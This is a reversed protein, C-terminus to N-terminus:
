TWERLAASLRWSAAGRTAVSSLGCRNGKTVRSPRRPSAAALSPKRTSPRGPLLRLGQGARRPRDTTSRDDIRGVRGRRLRDGARHERRPPEDDGAAPGKATAGPAAAGTAATSATAATAATTVAAATTTVVAAPLIITVRTGGGGPVVPSTIRTEGGHAHVIEHVLWLGIGAGPVEGTNEADVQHLLSGAHELEAPPIGPGDDEFSVALRGASWECLVRLEGGERGFKVANEVLHHFALRLKEEECRVPFLSEPFRRRVRFSKEAVAKSNSTMAADVLDEVFIVGREGRAGLRASATAHELLQRVLASSRRSAGAGERALQRLEDDGLREAARAVLEHVSSLVTLPTVIKHALRSVLVSKAHEFRQVESVDHLCVAYKWACTEPGASRSITGAYVRPVRRAEGRGGSGRDAVEELQFRVPTAAGDLSFDHRFGDLCELFRRGVLDERGLAKGAAGNAVLIRLERDTVVVGQELSALIAELKRKEAELAHLSRLHALHSAVNSAVLILFQLDKESYVKGSRSAVYVAGFRADRSLLPACMVSSLSSLVSTKFPDAGAGGGALVADGTELCQRVVTNSVAVEGPACPGRDTWARAVRLGSDGELLICVADHPLCRRITGGAADVLPGTDLAVIGSAFEYLIKLREGPLAVEWAPPARFVITPESDNKAPIAPEEVDTLELRYPGIELRDGPGLPAEGGRLFVGNLHCGNTSGEDRVTAREGPRDSARPLITAHHRSVSSSALVLTSEEDRGVTVPGDLRAEGIKHRNEDYVTLILM